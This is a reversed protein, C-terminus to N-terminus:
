QQKLVEGLKGLCGLLYKRRFTHHDMKDIGARKRLIICWRAWTDDNSVKQLSGSPRVITSSDPYIWYCGDYGRHECLQQQLISESDPRTVRPSSRPREQGPIGAAHRNEWRAIYPPAGGTNQLSKIAGILMHDSAPLQSTNESQQLEPKIVLVLAM